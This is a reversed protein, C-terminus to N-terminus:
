VNDFNQGNWDYGMMQNYTMRKKPKNNEKITEFMESLQDVENNELMDHTLKIIEEDSENTMDISGYELEHEKLNEITNDSLNVDLTFNNLEEVPEVEEVPEEEIEVDPQMSIEKMVEVIDEQEIVDMNTTDEIKKKKAM